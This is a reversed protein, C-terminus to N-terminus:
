EGGLMLLVGAAILMVCGVLMPVSVCVCILSFGETLLFSAVLLVGSVLGVGLLMAGLAVDQRDAVSAMPPLAAGGTASWARRTEDPTAARVPDFPDDAAHVSRELRRFRDVLDEMVSRSSHQEMRFAQRRLTRDLQRVVGPSVGLSGAEDVIQTMLHDLRPRDSFLARDLMEWRGPPLVELREALGRLSRAMGLAARGLRQQVRPDGQDDLPLTGLDGYAYTARVGQVLFEALDPDPGSGDLAGVLERLPHLRQDLRQERSDFEALRRDLDRDRRGALAESSSALGAAGV